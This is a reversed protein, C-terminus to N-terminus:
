AEDGNGWRLVTHTIGAMESTKWLAMGCIWEDSRNKTWASFRPSAVVTGIPASEYDEVTTLADPHDPVQVLKYRKGTPTIGNPTSRIVSHSDMDIATIMGGTKDLMVVPKNRTSSVAHALFHEEDDWEVDKMTEPKTHALVFDAVAHHMEDHYERPASKIREAWQRALRKQNDDLAVLALM